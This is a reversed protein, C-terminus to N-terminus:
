TDKGKSLKMSEVTARLGSEFSRVEFGPILQKLKSTDGFRVTGKTEDSPAQEIGTNITLRQMLDAIEVISTPKGSCINVLASSTLNTLRWIAEICDEVYVYDLAQRGDGNVEFPLGNQIRELNKVIVSKYGGEAFQKPGYIFFLRAITFDFGFEKASIMVAYEGWLKSLGYNNYPKCSDSEAMPEPGTSGYAYVSSAFFFKKVGSVGVAQLLNKTGSINNRFIVESDNLQNHLKVAALHYVFNCDAVVKVLDGLTATSLDLNVRKVRSDCRDWTGSSLNDLGVVQVGRNILYNSLHSGIFGAAGTVLVRM